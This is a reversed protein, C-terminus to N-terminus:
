NSSPAGLSSHVLSCRTYNNLPAQPLTTTKKIKKVATYAASQLPRKLFPAETRVNNRPAYNPWSGRRRARITELRTAALLGRLGLRNFSDM